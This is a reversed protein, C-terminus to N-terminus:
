LALYVGWGVSLFLVHQLVDRQHLQSKVILAPATMAVEPPVLRLNGDPSDAEEDM